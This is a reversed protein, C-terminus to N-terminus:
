SYDCSSQWTNQKVATSSIRNSLYRASLSSVQLFFYSCLLVSSKCQCLDRNILAAPSDALSCLTALYARDRKAFLFFINGNIGQTQMGQTELVNKKWQLHESAGNHMETNRLHIDSHKWGKPAPSRTNCWASPKARLPHRM